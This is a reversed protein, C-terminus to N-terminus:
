EVIIYMAYADTELLGSDREMVTIDLAERLISRFKVLAEQYRTRLM